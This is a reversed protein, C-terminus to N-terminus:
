PTTPDDNHVSAAGHVALDAGCRAALIPSDLEIALSEARRLLDLAAPKPKSQARLRLVEPLWWRDGRQLSTTWAADLSADASTHDGIGRKAEALLALWYPMRTLAGSSSLHAVGLKCQAVGRLGGTRWGGLVLAWERYYAYAHRHSLATLQELSEDLADLDGCLQATVAAYAHAIVTSYPHGIVRADEVAEQAAARAQGVDGLLWWAHASWARAHVEPRSGVTLSIGRGRSLEVALDLSQVALAPRGLSVATGGLAFHAQNALDPV